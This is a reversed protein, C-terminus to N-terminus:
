ERQHEQREHTHGRQRGLLALDRAPDSGPLGALRDGTHGDRHCARRERRHGIGVAAVGHRGRGACRRQHEAGDAVLAAFDRNGSTLVRRVGRELLVDEVELGHHHRSLRGRGLAAVGGDGRRDHCAGLQRGHRRRCQIARQM